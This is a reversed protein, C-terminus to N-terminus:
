RALESLVWELTDREAELVSDDTVGPEIKAYEACAEDYRARIRGIANEIRDERFFDAPLGKVYGEADAEGTFVATGAIFDGAMLGDALRTALPNYALGKLKGEEDCWGLVRPDSTPFSEIYGGGIGQRITEYETERTFDLVETTGDIDIRLARM